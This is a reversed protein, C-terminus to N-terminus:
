RRFIRDTREERNGGARACAGRGRSRLQYGDIELSAGFSDPDEVRGQRRGTNGRSHWRGRRVGGRGLGVRYPRGNEACGRPAHRGQGGLCRRAGARRFRAARLREQAQPRRDPNPRLQRSGSAIEPSATELFDLFVATLRTKRSLVSSKGVVKADYAGSRTFARAARGIVPELKSLEVPDIPARIRLAGHRYVVGLKAARGVSATEGVLEGIEVDSSIVRADFPVSISTRALRLEALALAARARGLRAEARAIWALRRVSEPVAKGPNDREFSAVNERAARREIRIEAEAERVTTRAAEVELEFERPEIRVLPENARVAGGETFKPSVWIVRGEVESRVRARREAKVAGTLMTTVVHETAVPKIVSVAPTAQAAGSIPGREIRDPARAFYLAAAVALVILALQVFGLWRPRESLSAPKTRDEPM